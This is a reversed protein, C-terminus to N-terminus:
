YFIFATVRARPHTEQPRAAMKQGCQESYGRGEGFRLPAPRLLGLSPRLAPNSPHVLRDRGSVIERRADCGAQEGSQRGGVQKVKRGRERM